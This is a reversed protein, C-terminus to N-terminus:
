GKIVTISHFNTVFSIFNDCISWQSIEWIEFDCEEEEEVSSQRTVGAMKALRVEPSIQSWRSKALSEALKAFIAAGM